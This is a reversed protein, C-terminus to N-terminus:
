KRTNMISNFYKDSNFEMNENLYDCVCVCVSLSCVDSNNIVMMVSLELTGLLASVCELLLVASEM